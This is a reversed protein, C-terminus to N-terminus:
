IKKLYDLLFHFCFFCLIFTICNNIKKEKLKSSIYLCKATLLNMQKKDKNLANKKVDLFKMCNM